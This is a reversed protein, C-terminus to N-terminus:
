LYKFIFVFRANCFTQFSRNGEMHGLNSAIGFMCNKKLLM